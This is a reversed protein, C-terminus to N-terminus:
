RSVKRTFHARIMRTLGTGNPDIFTNQSDRAVSFYTRKRLMMQRGFLDM